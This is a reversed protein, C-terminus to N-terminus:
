LKFCTCQSLWLMWNIPTRVILSANSARVDEQQGAYNRKSYATNGQYIHILSLEPGDTLRTATEGFLKHYHRFTRYIKVGHRQYFRAGAENTSLFYMMYIGRKAMDYLM